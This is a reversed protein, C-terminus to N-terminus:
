SKKGPAFGMARSGTTLFDVYVNLQKLNDAIDELSRAIRATEEADEQSPIENDEEEDSKKRLKGTVPCREADEVKHKKEESSAMPMGYENLQNYAEFILQSDKDKM